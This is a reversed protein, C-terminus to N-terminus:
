TSQGNKVVALSPTTTPTPQEELPGEEQPFLHGFLHAQWARFVRVPLAKIEDSSPQGKCLTATAERLADFLTENEEANLENVKDRYRQTTFEVYPIGVAKAVARQYERVDEHMPEPVQGESGWPAFDYALADLDVAESARFGPM